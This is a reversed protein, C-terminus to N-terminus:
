LINMKAQADYRCTKKNLHAVKLFDRKFVVGFM